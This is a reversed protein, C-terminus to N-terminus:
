IGKARGNARAAKIKNIEAESAGSRMAKKIQAHYERATLAAQTPSNNSTADAEIRTTGVVIETNAPDANYRSLLENAAFKSYNGGRNSLEALERREAESLNKKAWGSVLEWNEKGGVSSTLTDGVEKNRASLEQSYSKAGAIVLVAKEKGVLKELASQDIKSMDNESVAEYLLARAQEPTGGANQILTLVSDGVESGTSEFVSLDLPAEESSEQEQQTDETPSQETPPTEEKKTQEGSLEKIKAEAEDRAKQAAELAAKNGAEKNAANIEAKREETPTASVSPDKNEETAM